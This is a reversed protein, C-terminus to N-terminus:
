IILKRRDKEKILGLFRCIFTMLKIEEDARHNTWLNYLQKM